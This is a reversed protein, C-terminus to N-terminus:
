GETLLAMGRRASEDHPDRALATEFVARAEDRRGQGLLIHGMTATAFEAPLENSEGEEDVFTVAGPAGDGGAVIARLRAALARVEDRTERTKTM